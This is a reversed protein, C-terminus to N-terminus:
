STLMSEKFKAWTINSSPKRHKNLKKGKEQEEVKKEHRLASDVYLEKLIKGVEVSATHQDTEGDEIERLKDIFKNLIQLNLEDKILRNFINTYNTWIFNCHSIMLQEFKKKDTLQLRNYKKKLNVLREVDDRIKKSHKLSRIKETNDDAGYEKVLKDLNIREENVLNSM